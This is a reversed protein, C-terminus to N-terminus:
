VAIISSLCNICMFDVDSFEPRPESVLCCGTNWHFSRKWYIGTVALTKWTSFWVEGAQCNRQAQVPNPLPPPHRQRGGPLVPCARYSQFLRWQPPADMRGPWSSKGCQTTYGLPGFIFSKSNSSNFSLILTQHLKIEQKRESPEVM